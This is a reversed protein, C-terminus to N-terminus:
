RDDGSGHLQKRMRRSTLKDINNTAIDALSLGMEDAARALYWLADGIEDAMGEKLESTWGDRLTKKYKNALEGVEGVAGIVCYTIASSTRRMAQPYIATTRTVIQYTDFGFEPTTEM